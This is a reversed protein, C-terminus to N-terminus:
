RIDVMGERKCEMRSVIKVMFNVAAQVRARTAEAEAKAGAGVALTLSITSSGSKRIKQKSSIFIKSGANKIIDHRQVTPTVLMIQM